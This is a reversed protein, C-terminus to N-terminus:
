PNSICEMIISIFKNSIGFKRLVEALFQHNVRDFANATDLNIIIGREKRNISSHIAEQILIVNDIIQRKPIFGGQNESILSPLLKKLINALIKTVIKYSVNCLSIPRFRDFSLPNPDKPILALHSTKTNEGMKNKKFINKVMRVYDKKIIDWHNRYFAATFGDPSPAKDSQMSFVAVRIEEELVDQDLESNQQANIKCEVPQLFDASDMYQLDVTLLSKFHIHAVEKIEEQESLEKGEITIKDIQNGARRYLEKFMENEQSQEEKSIQQDEKEHNWQELQRHLEIRKKKELIANEKAWQKIVARLSKLKSEWVYHPSGIVEMEWHDKILKRFGEKSDWIKNYKFPIPGLNRVSDLILVMPKHDSATAHVIKSKVSSFGTVIREHILIRDLREKINHIGARKNSWTSKGNNPPIDILKHTEIITKLTDRSPDVLFKGGIKEEINRILNLDGGM